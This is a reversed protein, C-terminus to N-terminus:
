LEHPEVLADGRQPHMGLVRQLSSLAAPQLKVIALVRAANKRRGRRILRVPPSTAYTLPHM